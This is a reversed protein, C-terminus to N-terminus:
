WHCLAHDDDTRGEEVLPAEEGGAAAGRGFEGAAPLEGANM